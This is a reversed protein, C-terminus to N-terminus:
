LCQIPLRECTPDGGSSLNFIYSRGDLVEQYALVYSKKEGNTKRGGIAFFVQHSTTLLNKKIWLLIFYFVFLFVFCTLIKCINLFTFRKELCKLIYEM